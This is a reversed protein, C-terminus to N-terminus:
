FRMGDEILGDPDVEVGLDVAASCLQILDCKKESKFIYNKQRKSLGTITESFPILFRHGNILCHSLVFINFM